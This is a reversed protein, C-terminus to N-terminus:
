RESRSSFEQNEWLRIDCKEVERFISSIGVISFSFLLEDSDIVVRRSNEARASNSIASRSKESFVQSRSYRYRSYYNRTISSTEVLIRRKGVIRHHM